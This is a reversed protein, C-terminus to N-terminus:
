KNNFKWYFMMLGDYYEGDSISLVIQEAKTSNKKFCKFFAATPKGSFGLKEWSSLAKEQWEYAPAKKTTQLKDLYDM